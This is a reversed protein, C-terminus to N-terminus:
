IHHTHTPLALITGTPLATLMVLCAEPLALISGSMANSLAADSM